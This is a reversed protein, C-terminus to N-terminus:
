VLLPILASVGISSAPGGCFAPVTINAYQWNFRLPEFPMQPKYQAFPRCAPLESIFGWIELFWLTHDTPPFIQYGLSEREASGLIGGATDDSRNQFYDSRDGEGETPDCSVMLWILNNVSSSFLWGILNSGIRRMLQEYIDTVTDLVRITISGIVIIRTM